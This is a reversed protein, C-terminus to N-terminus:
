AKPTGSDPPQPPPEAAKAIGLRRMEELNDPNSCFELYEQPDNAFRKRLEAPLSMFANNGAVVADMATRYDAVEYFVDAPLPVAPRGMLVGTKQFRGVIVNIDCNQKESQIAMSEGITRIATKASNEDADYARFRKLM